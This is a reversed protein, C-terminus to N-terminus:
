VRARAQGRLTAGDRLDELWVFRVHPELARRRTSSARKSSPARPFCRASRRRAPLRRDLNFAGATFNLMAAVRGAAQLAMFAIAAGNANPLM